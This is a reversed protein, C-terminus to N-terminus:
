NIGIWRELFLLKFVSIGRIVLRKKDTKMYLFLSSLPSPFSISSIFGFDSWRLKLRGYSKIPIESQPTRRPWM